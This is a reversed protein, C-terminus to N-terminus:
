HTNRFSNGFNNNKVELRERRWLGRFDKGRRHSKGGQDLPQPERSVGGGGQHDSSATAQGQSLGFIEM